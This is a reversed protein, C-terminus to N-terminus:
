APHVTTGLRRFRDLLAEDPHDTVLHAIGGASVTQVLGDTGVIVRPALVVVEAAAEAVARHMASLPLDADSLGRELTLGVGTLFARRAHLGELSKEAAGGVLALSSGDVVGGTLVVDLGAPGRALTEAVPVSNTVVTLDRRVALLEALRTVETGAGLLIADGDDVLAAAVRAIASTTGPMPRTVDDPHLIQQNGPASRELRAGGRLRHVLGEAQLSELDRRVTVPSVGLAEALESTSAWASTALRQLLLRRRQAAFM